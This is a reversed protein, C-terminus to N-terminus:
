GCVRRVPVRDVFPPTGPRGMHSLRPSPRTLSQLRIAARRGPILAFSQLPAPPYIVVMFLPFKIDSVGYIINKSRMKRFLGNRLFSLSLLISKYIFFLRLIFQPSRAVGPPLGSRRSHSSVMESFTYGMTTFNCCLLMFFAYSIISLPLFVM